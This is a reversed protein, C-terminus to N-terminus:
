EPPEERFLVNRPSLRLALSDGTALSQLQVEVLRTNTSWSSAYGAGDPRDYYRLRFDGVDDTLPRGSLMLPEGPPGSWTLSRLYLTRASDLFVYQITHPGGLSVNTIAAFERSLRAFALRSKRLATANQRAQVLGEAVPILSVVSSAVLVGVLLLVAVLEILTFGRKM